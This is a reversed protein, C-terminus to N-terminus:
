YNREILKESLNEPVLWLKSLFEKSVGMSRSAQTSSITSEVHELEEPNLFSHIVSAIEEWKFLPPKYINIVSFPESSTNLSRISESLKSIEGRMSM